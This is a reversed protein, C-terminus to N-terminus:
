TQICDPSEGEVRPLFLDFTAGRGPESDVRIAGGAQRVIGYVTSLGLGKGRKLARTTFFPEFLRRKSDEDLGNGTDSVSLKICNCASLEPHAALDAHGAPVNMTAFTLTGGEPMADRANASLDLIVRAFQQPDARVAGLDRALQIQVEVREGAIERLRGDLQAILVNLSVIEPRVMQRGSFSLLESTLASARHSAELIYEVRKRRPDGATLEDVLLQAHGIVITMLNNFDHAVGGALLGVAELKQSERLREELRKCETIDHKVAIYHTVTGDAGIIPSIRADEIYEEGNKKHNIFEGHWEGGSSITKWMQEYHERSLHGGKLIRPNQGLVEEYSYGTVESFKPNVYEIAGDIDTIMVSSPSQEVALHFERAREQETVDHFVAVAGAIEGEEGRLPTLNLRIRIGAVSWELHSVTEGGLVRDLPLVEALNVNQLTEGLISRASPNALAVSGDCEVVLVGDAVGDWVAQWIQRRPPVSQGTHSGCQFPMLAQM